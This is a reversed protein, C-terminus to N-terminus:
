EEKKILEEMSGRYCLNIYDCLGGYTNHCMNLNRTFHGTKIATSIDDVNELVLDETQTPIEDIIVQVFVEPSVTETWDGNCRKGEVENSCTKHRGGSGDFGCKSCIKKRNKILNKNLVIYGAKKTKYKDSVAHVYLTLQPSTLVSDEEYQSASTKLDLVIPESHGEIEAVIDIYGIIKDEGNTLEIYEQTSHVKTIKPLVRKRFASIMHHGKHHLCTWMVRNAIKREEETIGNHGMEIRNAMVQSITELSEGIKEADEKTILDKDFDSKAYVISTCDRLYTNSGNIEQFRWYYDFIQEATRSTADADQPNEPKLLHSIARDLATGFLLAAKSKTPRIKKIYWFEYAKGCQQYKSVQSHSLRIAM